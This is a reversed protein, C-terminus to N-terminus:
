APTSIYMIGVCNCMYENLQVVKLTINRTELRQYLPLNFLAEIKKSGLICRHSTLIVM